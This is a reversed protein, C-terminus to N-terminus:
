VHRFMLGRQQYSRVSIDFSGDTHVQKVLFERGLQGKEVQSLDVVKEKIPLKNEDLLMVIKPLQRYQQNTEFVLGVQGNILEVLSGPPYLGVTKLFQEALESDFHTGRARYIIKLAQTSTMSPSYCRNATMADFADVIAIIRAFRSISQAKLHRPYGTGDLKEHHTWAVDVAQAAGSGASMLLNRGFVTHRAIAKFEEPTLKDPKNLIKPPVKMKGVDHLLGCIGLDHLADEPYGLQRGFAIALICVNLCHESTYEDQSRIKSLWMLADSNRLVSHVCENVTEKAQQTNIVSTLRVEDLLSKTVRRAERYVGLVRQNENQASVKNVLINQKPKM